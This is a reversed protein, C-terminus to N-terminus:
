GIDPAPESVWCNLFDDWSMEPEVIEVLEPETARERSWAVADLLDSAMDAPLAPNTFGRVGIQRLEEEAVPPRGFLASIPITHSM